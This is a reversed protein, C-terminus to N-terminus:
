LKVEFTADGENPAIDAIGNIYTGALWNFSSPNGLVELSAKMTITNEEVRLNDEPLVVTKIEGLKNVSIGNNSYNIV